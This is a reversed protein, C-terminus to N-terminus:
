DEPLGAAVMASYQNTLAERLDYSGELSSLLGQLPIRYQKRGSGPLKVYPISDAEIWNRVTADSVRLLRGAEPVTLLDVHLDRADDALRLACAVRQEDDASRAASPTPVVDDGM